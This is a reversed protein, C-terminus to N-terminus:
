LETRSWDETRGLMRIGAVFGKMKMIDNGDMKVFCNYTRGSKPDYISGNKWEKAKADYELGSLIQLGLTSRNHLSEDPNKNDKPPQGDIYKEPSIYVITGTYEGDKKEIKIKSTKDNNLWIGIVKDSEQSYGSVVYLFIMLLFVAKKM